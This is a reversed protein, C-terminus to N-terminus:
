LLLIFSAAVGSSLGGDYKGVKRISGGYQDTSYIVGNEFKGVKRKSGGYQDTSYIVANEFKGVKRKSGGYQDTSYFDDAYLFNVCLLSFLFSALLFWRQNFALIISM